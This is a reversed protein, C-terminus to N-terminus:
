LKPYITFMTTLRDLSEEAIVPVEWDVQSESTSFSSQQQTFPDLLKSSSKKRHDLADIVNLVEELHRKKM